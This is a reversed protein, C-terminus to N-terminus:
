YRIITTILTKKNILLVIGNANTKTLVNREFKNLFDQLFAQSKKNSKDLGDIAITEYEEFLNSIQNDIVIYFDKSLSESTYRMTFTDDNLWSLYSNFVNRITSLFDKSKTVSLCVQTEIIRQKINLENLNIMDM